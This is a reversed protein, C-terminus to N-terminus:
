FQFDITGLGPTKTQKNTKNRTQKNSGMSKKLKTQKNTKTM